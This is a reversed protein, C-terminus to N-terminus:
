LFGGWLDVSAQAPIDGRPTLTGAAFRTGQLREYLNPVKAGGDLPDFSQGVVHKVRYFEDNCHSGRQSPLSSRSLISECRIQIGGIGM